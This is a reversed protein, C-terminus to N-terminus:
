VREGATQAIRGAAVAVVIMGLHEGGADDGEEVEEEGKGDKRGGDRTRERVVGDGRGSYRAVFGAGGSGDLAALLDLRHTETGGERRVM